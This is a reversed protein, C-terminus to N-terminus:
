DVTVTIRRKEAPEPEWARARQLDVYWTGPQKAHLRVLHEGGGGPARDGSAVSRDEEVQLGGGVGTVSWVYGTTATEQLRVTVTDGTQAAVVAEDTVQVDAM